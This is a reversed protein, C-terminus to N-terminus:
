TFASPRGAHRHLTGAGRDRGTPAVEPDVQAAREPVQRCLPRHAHRAPRRSRPPRQVVRARAYAHNLM